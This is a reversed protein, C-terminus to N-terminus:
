QKKFGLGDLWKQVKVKVSVNKVEKGAVGFGEKTVAGPCAQTIDVLTNGVRSGYTCFPIVVKGKFSNGALFTALPTAYTNFWNPSGIFIVDYNEIPPVKGDKLPPKIKGELERRGRAVVERYEQSYADQPVLEILEGGTQAKIMEALQRTNGTQSFYVIAIKTPAAEAATAALSGALFVGIVACLLFCKTNLKM